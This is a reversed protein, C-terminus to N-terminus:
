PQNLWCSNSDFGQNKADEIWKSAQPAGIRNLDKALFYKKIPLTSRFIYTPCYIRLLISSVLDQDLLHVARIEDEVVGKGSAFLLALLPKAPDSGQNVLSELTKAAIDYHEQNLEEVADHLIDESVTSRSWVTTALIAIAIAILPVVIFISRKM